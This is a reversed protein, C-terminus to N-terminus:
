NMKDKALKANYIEEGAHYAEITESIAQKFVEAEGLKETEECLDKNDLIVCNTYYVGTNDVTYFIGIGEKYLYNNLYKAKENYDNYKRKDFFIGYRVVIYFPDNLNFFNKDDYRVEVAYIESGDSPLVDDIMFFSDNDSDWAIKYGSQKFSEYAKQVKNRFSIYVENNYRLDSPGDEHSFTIKDGNSSNNSGFLFSIIGKLIKYIGFLILLFLILLSFTVM